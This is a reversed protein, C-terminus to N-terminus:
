TAVTDFINAYKEAVTKLVAVRVRIVFKVQANKCKIRIKTTACFIKGEIQKELGRFFDNTWTLEYIKIIRKDEGARPGLM